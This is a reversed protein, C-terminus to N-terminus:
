QPQHVGRAALREDRWRSVKVFGEPVARSLEGPVVVEVSAGIGIHERVVDSVRQRVVEARAASCEVTIRVEERGDAASDVVGRYNEVGAIAFVAEDFQAPWVNIGRIKLMDDYRQVSGARIGALPRKCSCSGPAIWQVRDRTAFRLLPSAIATLPTIFLEGVGGDQVPEGTQSDLVECYATEAPFHLIGLKGDRLVGGPCTWAVARETCGWQEYLTAGWVKQMMEVWGAGYAEGAVILAQVGLMAPDAGEEECAVALRQVYTPTGVVLDAGYRALLEVKTHTPYAGVSLVNAGLRRLGEYYWHGAATMGVPLTLLVRSGPRVGAWWFGCAEMEIAAEEDADNMVYVERGKGSTGSTEVVTRIEDPRCQSRTGYPPHARCDAVVADKTTAPLARFDAASRGTPLPSLLPKYFPNEEALREAIEWVCALQWALLEDATTPTDTRWRAALPDFPSDVANPDARM